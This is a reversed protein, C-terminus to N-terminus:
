FWAEKLAIDSSERARDPYYEARWLQGKTTVDLVNGHECQYLIPRGNVYKQVGEPYHLCRDGNSLQFAWLTELAKKGAPPPTITDVINHPPGDLRAIRPQAWPAAVCIIAKGKMDEFGDGFSPEFCPDEITSDSLFCRHTNAAFKARSPQDCGAQLSANRVAHGHGEWPDFVHQVTRQPEAPHFHSYALKGGTIAFGAIGALGSLVAIAGAVQKGRSPPAPQQATSVFGLHTLAL